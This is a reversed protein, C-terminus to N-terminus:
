CFFIIIILDEFSPVNPGRLSTTRRSHTLPPRSTPARETTRKGHPHPPNTASPNTTASSVTSTDSAPTPAVSPYVIVVVCLFSCCLSHPLLPRVPRWQAVPIECHPLYTCIIPKLGWHFDHVGEENVRQRNPCLYLASLITNIGSLIKSIGDPYAGALKNQSWPVSM